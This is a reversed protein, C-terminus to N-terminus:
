SAAAEINLLAAAEPGVFAVLAELQVYRRSGVSTSVLKNARIADYLTSRSLGSREAAEPVSIYGEDRMRADIKPNAKM